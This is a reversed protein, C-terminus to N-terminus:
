QNRRAHLARRGRIMDARSTKKKPKNEENIVQILTLLRNLPWYQAQFDIQLTVMWYYIVETTIIKGLGPPTRKASDERFWTATQSDQLYDGIAKIHETTLSNFVEPGVETLSMCRFYDIVEEETKRHKELSSMYPKKHKAEWKSLSYLSHELQLHVEPTTIFENSLEDFCEQAKITLELM